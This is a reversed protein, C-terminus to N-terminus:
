LSGKLIIKKIYMIIIKLKVDSLFSLTYLDCNKLFRKNEYLYTYINYM